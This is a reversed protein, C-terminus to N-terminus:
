DPTKLPKQELPPSASARYEPLAARTAQESLVRATADTITVHTTIKQKVGPAAKGFARDQALAILKAQESSKLRSFRPSALLDHLRRNAIAGTRQILAWQDPPIHEPGSEAGGHATMGGDTAPVGGAAAGQREAALKAARELKDVLKM